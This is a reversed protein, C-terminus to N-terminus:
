VDTLKREASSREQDREDERGPTDLKLQIKALTAPVNCGPAAASVAVTLEGGDPGTLAHLALAFAAEDQHPRCGTPGDGREAAAQSAFTAAALALAIAANRIRHITRRRM